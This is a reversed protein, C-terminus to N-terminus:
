RLKPICTLIKWLVKWDTVKWGMQLLNLTTHNCEVGTLNYFITDSQVIPQRREIVLYKGGSKISLNESSNIMKRADMEDIANSYDKNYQILTGDLLTPIAM